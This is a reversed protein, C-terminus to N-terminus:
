EDDDNPEVTIVGHAADCHKWEEIYYPYVGVNKFRVIYYYAGAVDAAKFEEHGNPTVTIHVTTDSWSYNYWYIRDLRAITTDGTVVWGSRYTRITEECNNNLYLFHNASRSGAPLLRPPGPDDQYKCAFLGLGVVAMLGTALARKLHYIHTM